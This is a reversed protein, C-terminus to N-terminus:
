LNGLWNRLLAIGADGSREPYFGIGTLPGNEVAAIFSQEQNLYSVMPAVFPPDVQLSFELVAEIQDFFFEDNEIGQFLMSNKAVQVKAKAFSQSELVQIVGPWQALGQAIENDEVSTEFMAHLGAGIGLVAKGGALRTDVLEAAKSKDLVSMFSSLKSAGHIVFGDADLIESRQNTAIVKSGAAELAAIIASIDASGLDLVAVNRNM